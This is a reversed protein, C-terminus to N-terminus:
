KNASIKTVDHFNREKKKKKRIVMLFIQVFYKIYNYIM